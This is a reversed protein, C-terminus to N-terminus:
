TLAKAHASIRRILLCDKNSEKINYAVTINAEDLYQLALGSVNRQVLLIQPRLAAIRNVLNRLYEREQAIVPELSMFHQGHRSYELAFTVIAIRPQPVSRPMSKLAVNKSFVVGSVYSTDGPRGGPVKKLKIYHRIDLDDGNQVDPEVDDTCQLLIPILAKEWRSANPITADQLLQKLLKRVHQLSARNLEVAPADTGRMASSRMMKSGAGGTASFGRLESYQDGSVGDVTPELGKLLNHSKSRRPSLRSHNISSVSLNRKRSPRPLPKSTLSINDFDRGPLIPGTVNKESARSRGKKVAALLGALGNREDEGTAAQHMDGNMTAFISTQQDDSSDEDSLFPALDPDIISDTHFAPLLSRQEASKVVDRQFPARDDFSSRFNRMHQHRSHHRKHSSSRPRGSLSKLSRSSSPRVLTPLGDFELVASRRKSEVTRRSVPIGITPTAMNTHDQDPQADLDDPEYYSNRQLDEDESFFLRINGSQGFLAGPLLTTCKGDFIQGCTRCHHKRRFTSFADGCYFCERANEDKMWFRKSLVRRKVQPQVHTTKQDAGRSTKLAGDRLTLENVDIFAIHTAGPPTSVSDLDGGDTSSPRSTKFGPLHSQSIHVM